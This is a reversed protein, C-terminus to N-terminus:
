PINAYRYVAGAEMVGYLSLLESVPLITYGEEQLWLIIDATVEVSAMHTDHLLIIGGPKAARQVEKLISKANNSSWDKTDVSWLILSLGLAEAAKRTKADYSGFPPRLLTAPAGTLEAIRESTRSLESEIQKTTSKKLNIHSWTHSGIEHGDAVAQQILAAAEESALHKGQVFFTVCVGYERLIELLLPTKELDPGDDYTLAIYKGNPDLTPVPSPTPEATPTPATTPVVTPSATVPLRTPTPVPTSIAAAAQFEGVPSACAICAGLICCFFVAFGASKISFVTRRATQQRSEFSQKPM